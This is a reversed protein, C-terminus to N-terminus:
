EALLETWKGSIEMYMSKLYHRLIWAIVSLRSVSLYTIYLQLDRLTGWASMAATLLVPQQIDAHPTYIPRYFLLRTTSSPTLNLVSTLHLTMQAVFDMSLLAWSPVVTTKSSLGQGRPDEPVLKCAVTRKRPGCLGWFIDLAECEAFLWYKHIMHLWYIRNGGGHM